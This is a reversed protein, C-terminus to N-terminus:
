AFVRSVQLDEGEIILLADRFGYRSTTMCPPLEPSAQRYQMSYVM